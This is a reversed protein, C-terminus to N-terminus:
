RTRRWVALGIAAAVFCSAAGVALGTRAGAVETIAGILPGGIPTSGMFAVSWLAMVRGRMQPRSNLQLTANGTSMFSVSLWGVFFLAVIALWLSPAAATVAITIGFGTATVILTRLGTTGRAAVILGGVVAGVGMSSTMFGFAQPGGDFVDRAAVPLSVQFEYALTGVLAMMVLPVWLIPKSRVYRLGERLQGKARPVPIEHSIESTRMAVLSVVVAVFSTANIVFCWGAGVAALLVGAVAPGIARAANVMVSNLTVANRILSEGVIQHIFAQRAPNEFANNLGLLLALIAIQWVAIWGGLTLIALVLALVGMISQLFIMLLRRDVRDAIVGAYPGIILIPLAQLAVILGLISSSGSLTLVLWAQATAQMWTGILSVAQGGFYLRYNHVSLSAFVGTSQAPLPSTPATM